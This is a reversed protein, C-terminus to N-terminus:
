RAADFSWPFRCLVGRYLAYDPEVCPADLTVTIVASRIETQGPHTARLLDIVTALTVGSDVADDVVLLRHKGETASLHAGIVAAETHDVHPVKALQKRRPSFLRHELVRLGDVANRPLVGLLQHLFLMRSKTATGPRQCTLPLVPPTAVTALAMAKAVMLGGTRIGVLLTPAYSAAVMRMLRACAAEFATQDLTRVSLRANDAPAPQSIHM